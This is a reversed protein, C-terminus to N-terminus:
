KCFGRGCSRDMAGNCSRYESPTKKYYKKFVQSFYQANDCFGVMRSIETIKYERESDILEKAREMRVRIVFHSFKEGTEKFFLKGLYNENMFFVTRAILSLSLQSNDINSYIYNIMKNITNSHKKKSEEFILKTIHTAIVIILNSIQNLSNMEEIKFIYKYYRISRDNQRIINLFLEICYTKALEIEYQNSSLEFFFDTLHLKLNNLDGARIDNDIISYIQPDFKTPRNKFNINKKTFVNDTLYFEQKLCEEVEKYMQKLNTITNENSIGVSFNLNFSNTFHARIESIFEELADLGISRTVLIIENNLLTNLFVNENGLSEVAMNELASRDLLNADSDVKLIVLKFKTETIQFLNLYYAFESHSCEVGLIINRLFQEKVQPLVKILNSKMTVLYNEKRSKEKLEKVAADLCTFLESEDFPKLVYFKVGYVMAQKAFEFESYGSLIIFIIGPYKVSAKAILDIGNMGPMKLDTIVLDPHDQEIIEYAELGNQAVACLQGEHSQWDISSLGDRIIKEDDVVLIKYM